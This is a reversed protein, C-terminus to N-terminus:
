IIQEENNRDFSNYVQNTIQEQKSNSQAESVKLNQVCKILEWKIPMRKDAIM